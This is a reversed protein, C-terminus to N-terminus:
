GGAIPLLLAVEQGDALIESPSVHRGAIIPVATELRDTAAPYQQQLRAVLEAVTAGAPLTVALRATGVQKALDGSFRTQIHMTKEPCTQKDSSIIMVYIPFPPSPSVATEWVMKEKHMVEVLALNDPPM